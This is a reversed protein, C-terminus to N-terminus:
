GHAHDCLRTEGPAVSGAGIGELSAFPGCPNKEIWVHIMPTEGGAVLGGTCPGGPERLGAVRQTAPDFCLNDHIHWQMLKGGVDPVDALTDGSNLMFMVSVLKRSGDPQPEYVLSEPYDPNLIHEDNFYATNIFHEHGTAGDGISNFGDAEAVRYDSYKPLRLLTIAILNEARAQQEPTVGPTGSLDIPKTPDYPKAVAASADHGGAADHGAAAGGGHHDMGATGAHGAGGHGEAAEVMAPVAVIATVIAAIGMTARGLTSTTPKRFLTLSAIAGLVAVAALGAALADPFAVDEKAELGDIFSIGDTRSMVWAAIAAANVLAGLAVLVRNSRLLALVGWGIQVAAVASFAIVAQRHEGHHGTAAAHIAGAGISAVAAVALAPNVPVTTATHRPTILTDPSVAITM